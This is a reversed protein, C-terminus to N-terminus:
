QQNIFISSEGRLIFPDDGLQVNSGQQPATPGQLALSLVKPLEYFQQNLIKMETILQALLEVQSQGEFQSTDQVTHPIQNIYGASGIPTNGTTTSSLAASSTPITRNGTIVDGLMTTAARRALGTPDVGGILVPNSVSTVGVANTGGVGLTGALGGTVTATGGVQGVNVGLQTTAASVATGGIAVLNQGTIQPQINRLVYTYSGATTAVIRAFRGQVPITYSTSAVLAVAYVGLSTTSPSGTGFTIGDNSFQVGSTAAFTTGTTLHITQYGTTDFINTTNTVGTTVLVPAPADSLIFAGSLDQKVGSNQPQFKINLPSNNTEDMAWAVKDANSVVNQSGDIILTASGSINTVNYRIFQAETRVFYLGATEIQTKQNLANLETVLAPSWYINDLSREFTIIGRFSDGSVQVLLTSFGSVDIGTGVSVTSVTTNLLNTNDAFPTGIYSM